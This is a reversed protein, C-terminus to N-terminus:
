RAAGATDLNELLRSAVPGSPGRRGALAIVGRVARTLIPVATAADDGVLSREFLARFARASSVRRISWGRGSTLTVMAVVGVPLPGGEEGLTPAGGVNELVGDLRPLRAYPWVRGEPDFVAFTDSYYAAGARTLAVTLARRGSLHGGTLVLARGKWAVVGARVFLRGEARMAVARDLSGELADLAALMSARSLIRRGEVDVAYRGSLRIGTGEPGPDDVIACQIDVTAERSGDKLPGPPLRPALHALWSADPVRVTFRVGYSTGAISTTESGWPPLALPAASSAASAL